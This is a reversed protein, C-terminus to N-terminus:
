TTGDDASPPQAPAAPEATGGPETAAKTGSSRPARRGDGSTRATSRRPAATAGSGGATAGATGNPTGSTSASTTKSPSRTSRTARRTGTARPRAGAGGPSGAAPSAAAAAAPATTVDPVVDAEAAPETVAAPETAAAPEADIVPHEDALGAATETTKTDTGAPRMAAPRATSGAGALANERRFADYIDVIVQKQRETLTDDAHVAALLDEGGEREDLIGAQVYLVEASIRLAKAIQQLIEASPRRLGREIQSLYPNSVGAQRALQRLSIQAGRRQERIFDGVDRVHIAAM